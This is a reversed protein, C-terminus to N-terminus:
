KAWSVQEFSEEFHPEPRHHQHHHRNQFDGDYQQHSNWYFAAPQETALEGRRGFLLSHPLRAILHARVVPDRVINPVPKMLSASEIDTELIDLVLLISWQAQFRHHTSHSCNRGV